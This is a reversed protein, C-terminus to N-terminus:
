NKDKFNNIYQEFYRDTVKHIKGKHRHIKFLQQFILNFARGKFM